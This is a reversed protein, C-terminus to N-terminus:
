NEDCCRCCISTPRTFKSKSASESKDQYILQKSSLSTKHLDARQVFMQKKKYSKLFTEVDGLLRTKNAYEM